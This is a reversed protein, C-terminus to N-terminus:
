QQGSHDMVADGITITALNPPLFNFHSPCPLNCLGEIKFQYVIVAANNVNPQFRWKKSNSLCETILTKAGSIAVASVVSGEGNLKVRVVVAGQVRSLRAALPYTLSEFYLPKVTEDIVPVDQAILLSSLCVVLVPVLKATVHTAKLEFRRDTRRCNLIAADAQLPAEVM